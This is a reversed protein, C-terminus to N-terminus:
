GSEDPLPTGSQRAMAQLSLLLCATVILAGGVLQLASLSEGLVAYALLVSVLPEASSLMGAVGAEVKSVGTYFLAVPIVASVFVACAAWGWAEGSMSFDPSRAPWVLFLALLPSTFMLASLVIPAISHRTMLYRSSLILCSVCVGAALGLAIGVWTASEPVGITLAIGALAIGLVGLRQPGLPEGFAFVAGVATMLPYAFFLLTVLAVPARAFGEFLAYAVGLQFVGLAAGWLATRRGPFPDRRALAVLALVPGAVAFRLFLLTWADGGADYFLKSFMGLTGLLCAAGLVLLYGQPPLRM